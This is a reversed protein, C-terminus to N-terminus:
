GPFHRVRSKAPRLMLSSLFLSLFLDPNCIGSSQTRAEERNNHRRRHTFALRRPSKAPRRPPVRLSKRSFFFWHFNAGSGVAQRRGPTRDEIRSHNPAKKQEQIGAEKQSRQTGLHLFGGTWRTCNTGGKGWVGLPM